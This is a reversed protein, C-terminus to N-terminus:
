DVICHDCCQFCVSFTKYMTPIALPYCPPLFMIAALWLCFVMWYFRVLAESGVAGSNSYYFTGHQHKLRNCLSTSQSCDVRGVKVLGDQSVFYMKVDVSMKQQCKLCSEHVQLTLLPLNSFILFKKM